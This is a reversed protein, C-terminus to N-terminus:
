HKESLSRYAAEVFMDTTWPGADSGYVPDYDMTPKAARVQELTLGKKIMDEIRDRIITVMEQYFVLDSMDCLRGHGPILMTGGEDESGGDLLEAPSALDILRNLADIVGQISGGRDIDIVPYGTTRFIDGTSVVDSRDFSVISDGDTHGAPEHVIRVGEDNFWVKKQSLTYTDTPWAGQPALGRKGTPASMRDLVSQYAIVAAQNGASAGIDGVVNFGAVTSGAKAIAENGGSHDSDASTNIIYRIPKDGAISRIVALLKDSMSAVGTDVLLVGDRGVQLTINGGDGTLM